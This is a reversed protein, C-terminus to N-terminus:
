GLPLTTSAGCAEPLSGAFVTRVPGAAERAREALERAPEVDADPGLGHRAVLALEGAGGPEWLLAVPAGVITAAVRGFEGARGTAAPRRGSPLSAGPVRAAPAAAGAVAATEFRGSGPRLVRLLAIEAGAVTRAADVLEDLAGALAPRQAAAAVAGALAALADLPVGSAGALVDQEARAIM